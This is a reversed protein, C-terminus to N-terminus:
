KLGGFFGARTFAQISLSLFRVFSIWAINIIM